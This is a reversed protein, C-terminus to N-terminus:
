LNRLVMVPQRDGNQQLIDDTWGYRAVVEWGELLLPLRLPGYVRAANFILRDRGVPVSLFLVGGRRLTSRMDQMTKIDADPDLPDGYRGLGDHEFSSVSIAADFTQPARRFDDVTVAELRPSRSIIRNYEITTPRGGAYIAIAEYWPTLSGMIAVTQATIPHTAIAELLWENTIGYMLWKRKEIMALFADIEADTYVLPWNLPQNGAGYEHEIAIQGGMTFGDLMEPPMERPPAAPMIPEGWLERALSAHRGKWLALRYGLLVTETELQGIRLRMAEIEAATGDEMGPGMSSFM